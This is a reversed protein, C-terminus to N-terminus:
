RGPPEEAADAASNWQDGRVRSRVFDNLAQREEDSLEGDGDADFSGLEGEFEARRAEHAARCEEEDLEGDGNADFEALLEAKRAEFRARIAEHAADWEADDLEGDGNADFEALLLRTRNECRAALDAELQAREEDSLDGSQDSDYIGLLRQVRAHRDEARPPRLEDGGGGPQMPRDGAFAPAGGEGFGMGPGPPGGFERELEPREGDGIGGDGDHDFAGVLHARILGLGCGRLLFPEGDAAGPTTSDSGDENVELSAAVTAEDLSDLSTDTDGGMEKSCGSLATAAVFLGSAIRVSLKM